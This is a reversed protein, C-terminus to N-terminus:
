VGLGDLMQIAKKKHEHLLHIYRMVMAMTKHGLIETRLDTRKKRTGTM